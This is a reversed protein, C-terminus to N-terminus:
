WSFFPRKENETYNAVTGDPLIISPQIFGEAVNLMNELVEAGIRLSTTRVMSEMAEFAIAGQLAQQVLDAIEHEM